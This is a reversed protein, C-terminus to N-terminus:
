KGNKGGRTKCKNKATFNLYDELLEKRNKKLIEDKVINDNAKLEEILENYLKDMEEQSLRKLKTEKM